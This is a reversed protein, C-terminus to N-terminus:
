RDIYVSGVIRKEGNGPEIVYFYTGPPLPDNGLRFGTNSKGDWYKPSTEIGYKEARYVRNGWRNFIEISNNEYYEIGPIEFFDNIGDNNPSFAEPILFRFNNVVIFVTAEYCKGSNNCIRYKLQDNGNFNRGPTYRVTHNSYDIDASGFLPPVSIRLSNLMLLSDPDHDNKLVDIKLSLRYETSDYDDTAHPERTLLGVNLTDIDVCGFRDTIKLIYSGTGQVVARASEAGSIITGGMTTWLFHLDEGLSPSGDLEATEDQFLFLDQGARASIDSVTVGVSGSASVGYSNTATVVFRTSNGPTFVPTASFPDDLGEAPEWQYTYVSQVDANVVAKLRVSMCKGTTTDNGASVTFDGKGVMVAKMKINMCGSQDYEAVAVYFLGEEKWEISTSHSTNGNPFGALSAPAPSKFDPDNYVNWFYGSNENRVVFYTRIEGVSATFYEEAIGFSMVLAAPIALFLLRSYKIFSRIIIYRREFGM